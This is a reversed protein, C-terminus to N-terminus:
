GFIATTSPPDYATIIVQPYDGFVEIVAYQWDSPIMEYAIAEALQRTVAFREEIETNVKQRLDRAQDEITKM